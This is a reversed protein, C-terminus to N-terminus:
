GGSRTGCTAGDLELEVPAAVPDLGSEALFGSRLELARDYATDPGFQPCATAPPCPQMQIAAGLTGDAQVPVLELAVLTDKMWFRHTGPQDFVFLMGDFPDLSDRGSLGRQRAAASDAVLLCLEVM